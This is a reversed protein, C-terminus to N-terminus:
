FKAPDQPAGAQEAVWDVEELAARARDVDFGIGLQHAAVLLKLLVAPVMTAAKLTKLSPM